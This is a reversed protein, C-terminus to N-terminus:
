DESIMRTQCRGEICAPVRIARPPRCLPVPCGGKGLQPSCGSRPAVLAAARARTVPRATCLSPCCGEKPVQTLSCDDDSSCPGIEEDVGGDAIPASAPQEDPARPPLQQVQYPPAARGAMGDGRALADRLGEGGDPPPAVAGLGPPDIGRPPDDPALLPTSTHDGGATAQSPSRCGFSSLLAAAVACALLRM